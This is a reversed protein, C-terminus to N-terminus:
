IRKQQALSKSNQGPKAPVGSVLKLIDSKSFRWSRGIRNGPITGESALRYVTKVHIQLLNAVQSPTIIEEM